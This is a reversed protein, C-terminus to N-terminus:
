SVFVTVGFHAMAIAPCPGETCPPGGWPGLIQTDGPGAARHVTTSSGNSGHRESVFGVVSSDITQPFGVPSSPDAGLVIEITAGRTVHITTGNHSRDLRITGSQPPDSPVTRPTTVVSTSVNGAPDVTTPPGATAPPPPSPPTVGPQGPAVPPGGPATPPTPPDSAPDGEGPPGAGDPSGSSFAPLNGVSTRGGDDPLASAGLALGSVLVVAGLAQPVLRRRRRIEDGRQLCTDVEAPTWQRPNPDALEDFM